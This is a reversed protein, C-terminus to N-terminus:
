KIFHMLVALLSAGLGMALVWAKTQGRMESLADSVEKRWPQLLAHIAACSDKRVFQGRDELAQQHAHNLEDLRRAYEAAQLKTANNLGEINDSIVRDLGNIREEVKALRETITSEDSM